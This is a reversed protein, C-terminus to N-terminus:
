ENLVFINCWFVAKVQVSGIVEATTNLMGQWIRSLDRLNFIYHFKAPTPLMKIKTLQWLLRTLPVLQCVLNQVEIPFGRSECFHGMGIVGTYLTWFTKKKFLHEFTVFFLARIIRRNDLQEGFIKDISANSPLTCNFISFQRKLRQPIDNRGGGPHIMAALFQIDVINTFEGPKELNYFGKQEM